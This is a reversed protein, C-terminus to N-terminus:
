NLGTQRKSNLEDNRFTGYIAAFKDGAWKYTKIENGGITTSSSEIGESGIIKVIEAYSMGIKIHEFKDKSVDAATQSEDGSSIKYQRKSSLKRDIFTVYVAAFKEGKWKYLSSFKTESTQEGESGLIKVVEEYSMGNQLRNFNSMTLGVPSSSTSESDNSKSPSVDSDSKSKPSSDATPNTTEVTPKDDKDTYNSLNCGLVAFMIIALVSTLSNKM